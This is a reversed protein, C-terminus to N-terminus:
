EARLASTPHLRAARWAPGLSALVSVAGMVGVIAAITAVDGSVSSQVVVSRLVVGVGYIGAVGLPIGIGLQGLTRRLVLWLVRHPQAGLAMRIGIEQTRQSVSYATVAYLGVASLVLAIGAFLTFLFGFTELDWRNRRMVEEMTQVEFLPLDPEVAQMVERASAVVAATSAASRVILVAARDAAARYPLYAVPDPEPDRAGRQRVDPVIGVITSWGPDATSATVPQNVSLRISQGVPDQGPFHLNAFRQNIVAAGHGATGDSRALARGRLLPLGLTDFYHDGVTLLTVMPKAVDAAQERGAITLGRQTGGGQPVASALTSAQISPLSALRDEFQQYVLARPAPEPYKTLPLYLRMTILRATDIGVPRASVALVSRIMFGAGGLLVLTLVLEIVMLAATWRRARVGASGGRGGDKMLANTDAKSVHLAPALGALIVTILCVAAMFAFVIPDLEFVMWYPKGVNQTARDFWRILAVSMVAGAATACAAIILCEVLLQRVIRWRSAGLSTRIAIERTRRTSRVLLLNAVNACAILLVFGVATMLSLFMVRIPGGNVADNYRRVLPKVDKNTAPFDESLRQGIAAFEAQASAMTAGDALRGIVSFNRLDRRPDLSDPPLQHLPMWLDDTGPFQMGPAMVGVITYPKSNIRVTRGLVAPDGGYRRQWTGHALLAVPTAQLVDDDATFDRGIAAREGIARFLSASVYSGRLQEPVRAEESVNIVSSLSAALHSVTQAQERWDGFETFSVGFQRGRHDTTAFSLIREPEDFPLGRLLVANVLTFVAVNVGIGLALAGIAALAFWRDKLLLRVGVRIDQRM